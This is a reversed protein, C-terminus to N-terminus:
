PRRAELEDLLEDPVRLDGQGAGVRLDPKYTGHYDSGGTVALGYRRAVSTLRERVDPPYRGYIAEVGSLGQASMEGVATDLESAELGLSLPHALVAAGGSARVLSIAHDLDLRRREVYAPRGKALWTDFAEQVSSVVGKHVLVAAAHPRGAGEEGAEAEIEEITVPLGLEALRDVLRLNREARWQRARGLEDQLPGPGDEVFYALLHASGWPTACSLECGGIVRIGLERGRARARDVGDLRDHDTLAM